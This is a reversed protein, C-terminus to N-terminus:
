SSAENQDNLFLKDEGIKRLFFIAILVGPLLIINSFFTFRLAMYLYQVYRVSAPGAVGEVVAMSMGGMAAFLLFGIEWILLLWTAYIVLARKKWSAYICCKYSAGMLLIPIVLFLSEEFLDKYPHSFRIKTTLGISFNLLAGIAWFVVFLLAPWYAVFSFIILGKM